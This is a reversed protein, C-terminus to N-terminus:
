KTEKNTEMSIVKETSQSIFWDGNDKKVLVVAVKNGYIDEVETFSPQDGDRAVNRDEYKKEDIQYVLIRKAQDENIILMSDEAAWSILVKIKSDDYGVGVSNIILLFMMCLSIMAPAFGLGIVIFSNKDFRISLVFIVFFFIVSGFWVWPFTMDLTYSFDLQGGSYIIM